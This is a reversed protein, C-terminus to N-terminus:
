PGKMGEIIWKKNDKQTTLCVHGNLMTHKDMCTWKIMTYKIWVNDKTHNFMCTWKSNHTKDMCQGKTHNCM